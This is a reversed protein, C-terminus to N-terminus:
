KALKVAEAADVLVSFDQVKNLEKNALNTTTNPEM